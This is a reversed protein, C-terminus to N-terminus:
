ALTYPLIIDVNEEGYILLKRGAEQFQQSGKARSLAATASIGAEQLFIEGLGPHIPYSWFAYHLAPPGLAFTLAFM